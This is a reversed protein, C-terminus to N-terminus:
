SLTKQDMGTGTDSVSILIYQGASVEAHRAAYGEDLHSNSTEITLRDGSPMADRANVGLNLLASELENVDAETRWLGGALVTEIEILEGLVRRLLESMGGVLVNVDIQKPD